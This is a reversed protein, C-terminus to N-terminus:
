VMVGSSSFLIVHNLYSMVKQSISFLALAIFAMEIIKIVSLSNTDLKYNLIINRKDQKYPSNVVM